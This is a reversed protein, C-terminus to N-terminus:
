IFSTVYRAYNVIAATKKEFEQVVPIITFCLKFTEYFHGM